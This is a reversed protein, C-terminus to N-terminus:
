GHGEDAQESRGLGRQVDGGGGEVHEVAGGCEV